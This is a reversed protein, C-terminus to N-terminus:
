RKAITTPPTAIPDAQRMQFPLSNVIGLIISSFRYDRASTDSVIKRVAPADYTETGRGLAYIMLKETLTTVFVNPRAMLAKRLGAVGTFTTGDPM